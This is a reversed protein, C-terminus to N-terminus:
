SSGLGCKQPAGLEKYMDDLYEEASRANRKYNTKATRDAGEALLFEAVAFHMARAAMLLPTEDSESRPDLDAGAERLVFCAELHGQGAALHLPTYNFFDKWNVDAGEDIAAKCGAADGKKAAAMLKQNM